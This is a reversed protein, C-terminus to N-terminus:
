AAADFGHRASLRAAFMAPRKRRRIQLTELLGKSLGYLLPIVALTTWLTRELLTVTEITLTM